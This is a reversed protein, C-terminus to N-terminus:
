GNSERFDRDSIGSSVYDTGNGACAGASLSAPPNM